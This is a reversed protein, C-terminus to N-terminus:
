PQSLGIVFVHLLIRPGEKKWREGSVPLSWQHSRLGAGFGSSTLCKLDGQGLVPSTGAHCCCFDECSEVAQCQRIGNGEKLGYRSHKERIFDKVISEMGRAKMKIADSKDEQRLWLIGKREPSHKSFSVSSFPISCCREIHAGGLAAAKGVEGNQTRGHPWREQKKQLKLMQGVVPYNSNNLVNIIVYYTLLRM